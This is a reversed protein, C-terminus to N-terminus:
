ILDMLSSKAERPRPNQKHKRSAPQQQQQQQPPQQPQMPDNQIHQQFNLQHDYSPEFAPYTDDAQYSMSDGYNDVSSSKDPIVNGYMDVISSVGTKDMASEIFRTLQNMNGTVGEGTNLCPSTNAGLIGATEFWGDNDGYEMLNLSILTQGVMDFRVMIDFNGATTTIIPFLDNELAIKFSMLTSQLQQDTSDTLLRADHFQWAGTTGDPQRQYSSYRFVVTAIALDSCVASIVNSAMYSLVNQPTYDDQPRVDWQPDTDLKHIVVDMEPFKKELEAITYRNTPDIFKSATIQGDTGAALISDVGQNFRTSDQDLSSAFSTTGAGGVCMMGSDVARIIKRLHHKPSNDSNPFRHSYPGYGLDMASFDVLSGCRGYDSDSQFGVRTADRIASPLAKYLEKNSWNTAEHNALGSNDYPAIDHKKGRPTVTERIMVTTSSTFVIEANKNMVPNTQWITNPAVPEQRFYGAAIFRSTAGDRMRQDVTMMFTWRSSMVEMNSPVGQGPLIAENIISKTENPANYGVVESPDSSDLVTGIMEDTFNYKMPRIVQTPIKRPSFVRLTLKTQQTYKQIESHVSTEPINSNGMNFSPANNLSPNQM